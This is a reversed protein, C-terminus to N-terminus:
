ANSQREGIAAVFLAEETAMQDAVPQATDLCHIALDGSADRGSPLTGPLLSSVTCFTSLAPGEALQTQYGIFGPRLPMRPNLARWAVDVGAIISQCFFRLVFRALKVPRFRLQGPPMLRISAWAALTAALIGVALDAARFGTLILWLAFFGTARVLVGRAAIRSLDLGNM